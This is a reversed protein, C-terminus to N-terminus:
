PKMGADLPMKVSRGALDNRTGRVKHEGNMRDEVLRDGNM